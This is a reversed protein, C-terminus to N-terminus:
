QSFIAPPLCKSGSATEKSSWTNARQGSSAGCASYPALPLPTLDWSKVPQVRQYTRSADRDFSSSIALGNRMSYGPAKIKRPRGRPRLTSELGLVTVLQQQWEPFVFLGPAIGLVSVSTNGSAVRLDQHFWDCEWKPQLHLAGFDTVEM